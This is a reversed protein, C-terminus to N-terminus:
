ANKVKAAAELGLAIISIERMEVKRIKGTITM